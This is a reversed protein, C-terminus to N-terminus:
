GIIFWAVKTNQNVVENLHITFSDAPGNPVAAEVHRGDKLKQLTAFILSSTSIPGVGSVTVSKSGAPIQLGGSRSFAVKGIVKLADGDGTNEASVGIGNEGAVGRIGVGKSTSEGLVGIADTGATVGRLGYGGGTNEGIVGAEGLGESIGHVGAGGGTNEGFLAARDLAATTGSVGYGGGTNEGRIGSAGANGATGRVGHGTGTNEGLVGSAAAGGSKGRVGHGAGTNEGFVGNAGAASSVGKVGDGLNSTGKVGSGGSVVSADQGWLGSFGAGQAYGVLGHESSCSIQTTTDAINDQGLLTPDGDDAHASPIRGFARAGLAAIGGALGALVARRSPSPGAGTDIAKERRM